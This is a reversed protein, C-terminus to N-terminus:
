ASLIPLASPVRRCCHRTQTPLLPWVKLSGLPLRPMHPLATEVIAIGILGRMVWDQLVANPAEQIVLKLTPHRAQIEVIADTIRNVLFGHQNVSPLIGIAIRRSPAAAAAADLNSLRRSRTEILSAFETFREGRETPVVGDGRREFLAGGLTAELKHLQESLAPQSINVAHAAASVRRLRQVMRFYHIQRLSIVPRELASSKPRGLARRMHRLFFATVANPKAARAVVVM